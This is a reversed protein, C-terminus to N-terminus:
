SHPEVLETVEAVTEAPSLQAMVVIAEAAAAQVTLTLRVEAAAVQVVPHVALTIAVALDQLHLQLRHIKELLDLSFDVPNIIVALAELVV